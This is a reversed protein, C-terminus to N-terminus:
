VNEMKATTTQTVSCVIIVASFTRIGFMEKSGRRDRNVDQMAGCKGRRNAKRADRKRQWVIKNSPM